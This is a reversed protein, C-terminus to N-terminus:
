KSKPGMAGTGTRLQNLAVGGILLSKIAWFWSPQKRSEAESVSLVAVGVNIISTLVLGQKLFDRYEDPLNTLPFSPEYVTAALLIVLFLAGHGLQLYASELGFFTDADQGLLISVFDVNPKDEFLELNTDANPDVEIAQRYQEADGRSIRTVPAVEAREAKRKKLTEFKPLAITGATEKEDGSDSSTESPIPFLSSDTRAAGPSFLEEPLPPRAVRTKTKSDSTTGAKERQEPSAVVEDEARAATAEELVPASFEETPPPPVEVVTTFAASSAEEKEFVAPPDPDVSSTTTPPAEKTKPVRSGQKRRRKKPSAHLSVRRTTTTSITTFGDALAALLTLGISTMAVLVAARHFRM